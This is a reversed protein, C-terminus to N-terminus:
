RNGGWKYTSRTAQTRTNITLGHASAWAKAADELPAMGCNLLWTAMRQDGYADLSAKLFDVADRNGQVIYYEYGGAGVALDKGKMSQDLAARAGEVYSSGVSAIDYTAINAVAAMAAGASRRTSADPSKLAPGLAAVAADRSSSIARAFVELAQDTQMPLRAILPALFRQDGIRGMADATSVRVDAVPDDLLPILPEVASREVAAKAANHDTRDTTFLGQVIWGLAAASVARLQPKPSTLREIFPPVVAAGFGVLVNAVEKAADSDKATDFRAFLPDIARPDGFYGLYKMANTQISPSPDDLLKLLVPVVAGADYKGYYLESMASVRPDTDGLGVNSDGPGSLVGILYGESHRYRIFGGIGATIVAVLLIAAVIIKRRM